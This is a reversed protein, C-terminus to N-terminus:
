LGRIDIVPKIGCDKWLRQNNKGSDYGRDASLQVAREVIQPHREKLGQVLPLLQPSDSVSSRTLQFGVPLEYRSDVM